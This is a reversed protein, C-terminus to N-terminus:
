PGPGPSPLGGNGPLGFSERWNEGYDRRMRENMAAIDRQVDEIGKKQESSGTRAMAVSPRNANVPARPQADAEDDDDSSLTLDLVEGTAGSLPTGTGARAGNPTTSSSGVTGNSPYGNLRPRKVLPTDGDSEDSDDIELTERQRMATSKPGSASSPGPEPSNRKSNPKSATPDPRPKATGFKNNDSRWTGDPEVTVTDVASSCIKLIDEFYSHRFTAPPPLHDTKLTVFQQPSAM